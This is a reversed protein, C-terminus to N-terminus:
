KRSSVCILVVLSSGGIRYSVSSLAKCPMSCWVTDCKSVSGWGITLCVTMSHPMVFSQTNKPRCFPLYYGPWSIGSYGPWSIGSHIFHCCVFSSIAKSNWPNRNITHCYYYNSKAAFSKIRDCIIVNRFSLSSLLRRSDNKSQITPTAAKMPQCHESMRSGSSCCPRVSESSNTIALAIPAVVASVLWPRMWFGAIDSNM